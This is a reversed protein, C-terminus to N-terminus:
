KIVELRNDFMTNIHGDDFGILSERSWEVPKYHGMGLQPVGHGDTPCNGRPDIVTGTKRSDIGSGETVRVRAGVKKM